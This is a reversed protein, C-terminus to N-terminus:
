LKIPSVGAPCSLSPLIALFIKTRLKMCYAIEPSALAILLPNTSGLTVLAAGVVGCVGAGVAGTVPTPFLGFM